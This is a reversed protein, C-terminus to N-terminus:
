LLPANLSGSNISSANLVGSRTREKPFTLRPSGAPSQGDGEASSLLLSSIAQRYSDCTHDQFSTRAERFRREVYSPNVVLNGHVDVLVLKGVERAWRLGMASVVDRSCVVRFCDPVM